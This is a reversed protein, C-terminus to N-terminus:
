EHLKRFQYDSNIMDLLNYEPSFNLEKKAKDSNAILIAPDGERRAKFEYKIPKISNAKTVLELVSYGKKSGLNFINSKNNKALYEIGLIHARSLDSVHIYDRICTGDNTPYDNGYILLKERKNLMTETVIPMIHTPNNTILGARMKPDAGCVNFYRFIVYKIGYALAAWKIIKESALKSEGYPNIPSLFDDENCIGNQPNGYVAATSSFVLKNVKYEQMAKLILRVGETNNHFYDLPMSMSEPVIIKAAFDMVVDIKNEMFVKKLDNYNTIDGLYFKINQPLIEKHGTSLNDMVIVEYKQDLLNYVVNSGIYGAGGIVLVRM